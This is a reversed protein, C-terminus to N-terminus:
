ISPIHHRKGVEEVRGCRTHMKKDDLGNFVHVPSQIQALDYLEFQELARYDSRFSPLFFSMVEKNEVLEAPMGGLQIIHDLFQDDPLHSVKKRQIHPPQIASIIVAQPFIGERELKQALRFTIMGGMSHGFLVFPRDPRLNLEQKYLDTLEELDEIASTQNTGHGPPEAALMECEGQLFLMSLAFRRRIAAPLRFVSSSHKKRRM